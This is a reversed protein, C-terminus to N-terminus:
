DAKRMFIKTISGNDAVGSAVHTIDYGKRELKNIENIIIDGNEDHNAKSFGEFPVYENKGKGYHIHVGADEYKPVEYIEVLIHEHANDKQNKGQQENSISKFALLNLGLSLVCIGTIIYVVIKKM